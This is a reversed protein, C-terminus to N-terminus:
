VSSDKMSSVELINSPFHITISNENFHSVGGLRMLIMKANLTLKIMDLKNMYENFFVFTKEYSDNLARVSKLDCSIASDKFIKKLIKYLTENSLKSSSFDPPVLLSDVPERVPKYEVCLCWDKSKFLPRVNIFISLSLKKISVLYFALLAEVMISVTSYNLFINNKILDNEVQQVLCKILAIGKM